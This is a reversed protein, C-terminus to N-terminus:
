RPAFSQVVMLDPVGMAGLEPGYCRINRVADKLCVQTVKWAGPENLQPFNLLARWVGDQPTGSILTWKSWPTARVNRQGSPSVVVIGLGESPGPSPVDPVASIGSLDDKATISVTVQRRGSSMDLSPPAFAIATLEPPNVDAPKSVVTIENKLGRRDFDELNMALPNGAGDRVMIRNLLWVGPESYRPMLLEVSWVGNMPTGYTLKLQYNSAVRSQRGSPSTLVIAWYSSRSGLPSVGSIDDKLGLDITVRVDHSSVDAVEPNIKLSVLEPPNNDVQNAFGVCSFTSVCLLVRRAFPNHM